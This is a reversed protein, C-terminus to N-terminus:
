FILMIIMSTNNKIKMTTKLRVIRSFPQKRPQKSTINATHQKVNQKFMKIDNNIKKKVQLYITSLHIVSSKSTIIHM